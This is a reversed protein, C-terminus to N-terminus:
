CSKLMVEMAQALDSGYAIGLEINGRRTGRTTHNVISGDTIASNPLIIKENDPTLITTAFLGIDDVKGAQGGATIWDGLAFPRFFLIMVGSAFHALSGQLALGIALGTTALLAVLSTTEIGVKDLAVIVTAALVLYQSISALFRTLAEDIEAKKLAKLLLVHVWRSITWGVVFIIIAYIINIILPMFPRLQEPVLTDM